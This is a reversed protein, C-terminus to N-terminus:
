HKPPAGIEKLLALRMPLLVDVDPTKIKKIHMM